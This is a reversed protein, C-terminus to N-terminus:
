WCEDWRCVEGLDCQDNSTCEVCFGIDLDCSPEDSPCDAPSTCRSGCLGFQWACYEGVGCHNDTICEVCRGLDRSCLNHEGDSTCDDNSLCAVCNGTSPDCLPTPDACQLGALCGTAIEADSQSGGPAGANTSVDGGSAGGTGASTGGSGGRDSSGGASPAAADAGGPRTIVNTDVDGCAAIGVVLGGAIAIRRCRGYLLRIWVRRM